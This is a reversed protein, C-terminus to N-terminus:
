CLQGIDAETIDVRLMETIAWRVFKLRSSLEYPQIVRTRRFNRVKRIKSNLEWNSSDMSEQLAFNASVISNSSSGCNIASGNKLVQSSLNELKCTVCGFIEFDLSNSWSMQLKGDSTIFLEVGQDLSGNSSTTNNRVDM